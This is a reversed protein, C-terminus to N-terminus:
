KGQENETGKERAMKKNTHMNEKRIKTSKETGM